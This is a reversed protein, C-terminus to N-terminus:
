SYHSIVKEYDEFVELLTDPLLNFDTNSVDWAIGNEEFYRLLLGILMEFPIKEPVLKEDAFYSPYTTQYFCEFDKWAKPAVEKIKELNLKKLDM